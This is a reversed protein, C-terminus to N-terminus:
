ATQVSKPVADAAGERYGRCWVRVANEAAGHTDVDFAVPDGTLPLVGLRILYVRKVGPHWEFRFRSLRPNKIVVIPEM